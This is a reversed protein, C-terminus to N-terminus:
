HVQGRGNSLRWAHLQSKLFWCRGGAADQSFPIERASTLKYLANQTIGLYAAAERSNLWRDDDTGVREALRDSLRDALADALKDLVEDAVQLGWSPNGPNM